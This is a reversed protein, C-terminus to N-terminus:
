QAPTIEDLKALASMTRAQLIRTKLRELAGAEDEPPGAEGAVAEDDRYNEPYRDIAELIRAKVEELSMPAREVIEPEIRYRTGRTLFRLIRVLLSGDLGLKRISRIEWSRGTSDVLLMGDRYGEKFTYAYCIEYAKPGSFSVVDSSWPGLDRGFGLMPWKFPLQSM